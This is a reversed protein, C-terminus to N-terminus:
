PISRMGGTCNFFIIWIGFGAEALLILFVVLDINRNLRAPVRKAKWVLAVASLIGLPVTWYLQVVSLLCLPWELKLSFGQYMEIIVPCAFGQFSLLLFAFVGLIASTTWKPFTKKDSEKMKDPVGSYSCRVNLTSNKILCYPLEMSTISFLPRDSGYPLLSSSSVPRTMLPELTSSLSRQPHRERTSAMTSPTSSKSSPTAPSPIKVTLEGSLLVGANIVPHRHTHLRAGPPIRIRLITINPQQRPFAPLVAGDWSNTSSILKTVTIKTERPEGGPHLGVCGTLCLLLVTMCVLPFFSHKPLLNKM